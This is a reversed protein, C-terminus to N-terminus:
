PLLGKLDVTLKREELPLLSLAATGDGDDTFRKEEPYVVVTEGAVKLSMQTVVSDDFHASVYFTHGGVEVSDDPTMFWENITKGRYTFQVEYPFFPNEEPINITYSGDEEFCGDGIENEWFDEYSVVSWVHNGTNFKVKDGAAEDVKHKVANNPTAIAYNDWDEIKGDSISDDTERTSDDTETEAKWTEAIAAVTEAITEAIEAATTETEEAEEIEEAEETDATEEETTEAAATEEVIEATEVVTEAVTEAITAATEAITQSKEETETTEAKASEAAISESVLNNDALVPRAPLMLLVALAVALNQRIFRM